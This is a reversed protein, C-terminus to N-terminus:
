RANKTTRLRVTSATIITFAKLRESPMAISKMGLEMLTSAPM